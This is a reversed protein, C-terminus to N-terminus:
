CKDGSTIIVDEHFSCGAGYSAAVVEADGGLFLLVVFLEIISNRKNTNMCFNWHFGVLKKLFSTPNRPTTKCGGSFGV